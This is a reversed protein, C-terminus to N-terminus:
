KFGWRNNKESKVLKEDFEIPKEIILNRFHIKRHCHSCVMVCKKAENVLNEWSMVKSSLQFDKKDEDLHHFDYVVPDDELNCICCKSAFGEVLKIKTNKRWEKVRGYQKNM